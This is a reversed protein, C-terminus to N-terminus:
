HLPPPTRFSSSVKPPNQRNLLEPIKKNSRDGMHQQRKVNSSTFNQMEKDNEIIIKKPQKNKKHVSKQIDRISTNSIECNTIKRWNPLVMGNRICEYAYATFSECHCFHSPFCECIDSKCFDFYKDPNVRSICNGFFEQSKLERCKEAIKKKGSSCHPKLSRDNPRRSCAKLGGVRWSDAFKKVENDTMNFGTRSKLDDRWVNNYNGCLGCIKGKYSIPAELQLFNYGDWVMKIGIESEVEILGDKNKFIKVVNTESYPLEIRSGNVKM